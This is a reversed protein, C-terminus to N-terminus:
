HATEGDGDISDDAIADDSYPYWPNTPWYDPPNPMEPHSM